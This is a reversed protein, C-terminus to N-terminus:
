VKPSLTESNAHQNRPREEFSDKTSSRVNAILDQTAVRINPYKFCYGENLLREPVVWRSKLILETETDMLIAGIRLLWAPAPLGLRVHLAERLAKMFELNRIAAPATCNYVGESANNLRLWDIIRTFDTVHLWSVYQSGTGMSGGLGRNCLSVFEPLAGGSSGLVIGTRLIIKRTGKLELNNFSEEWGTCVDVSFGSGIDGRSETMPRDMAHRYITASSSQIWVPIPRRLASVAKGLAHVSNVRSSLIETKNTENYRCNVSKGAMNILMDAGELESVWTGADVGNWQIFRIRGQSARQARTLIIVEAGQQEYFGALASGLFGSGGAIVIKM